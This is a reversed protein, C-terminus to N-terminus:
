QECREGGLLGEGFQHARECRVVDVAVAHGLHQAQFQDALRAGRGRRADHHEDLFPQQLRAGAHRGRRDGSQAFPQQPVGRVERRLTEAGADDAGRDVLPRRVLVAAGHEPQATEQAGAGVLRREGAGHEDAV